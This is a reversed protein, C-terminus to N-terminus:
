YPRQGSFNGPPDYNCVWFSWGGGGFPGGGGCTAVACGLRTSDRWVVQTYHGCVKGPACRNARIDYHEAESAWGAVITAPSATDTRASLNEGHRSGSHEFVCRDAWTQAERALADSWQMPPVDVSARVDDHAALM